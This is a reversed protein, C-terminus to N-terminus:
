DWLNCKKMVNTEYIVTLERLSLPQPDSVTLQFIQFRSDPIGSDTKKM